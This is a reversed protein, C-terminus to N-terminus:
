YSCTLVVELGNSQAQELAESASYQEPGNDTMVGYISCTSKKYSAVENSLDDLRGQLSDIKEYLDDIRRTEGSYASSSERSESEESYSTNNTSGASADKTNSYIAAVAFIFMLIIAVTLVKFKNLGEM